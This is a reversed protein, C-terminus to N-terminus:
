PEFPLSLITIPPLVGWDKYFDWSNKESILLIRIHSNLPGVVALAIKFFFLISSMNRLEMEASTELIIRISKGTTSM